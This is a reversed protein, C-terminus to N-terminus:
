CQYKGQLIRTLLHWCTMDTLMQMCTLGSAVCDSMCIDTFLYHLRLCVHKGMNCVAHDTQGLQSKSTAMVSERTRPPKESSNWAPTRPIMTYLHDHYENIISRDYPPKRFYPYGWIMQKTPNERIFWGNNPVGM